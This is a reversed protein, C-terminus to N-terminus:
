TPKVGYQELLKIISMMILDEMKIGTKQQCTILMDAVKQPIVIKLEVSM